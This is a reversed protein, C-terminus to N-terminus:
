DAGDGGGGPGGSLTTVERWLLLVLGQAAAAVVARAREPLRQGSLATGNLFSFIRSALVPDGAYTLFVHQIGGAQADRGLARTCDSVTHTQGTVGGDTGFCGDASLRRSLEAAPIRNRWIEDGPLEHGLGLHADGSTGGTPPIPSIHHPEATPRPTPRFPARWKRLLPALSARTTAPHLLLARDGSPATM